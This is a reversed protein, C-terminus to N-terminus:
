KNDIDDAISITAYLDEIFYILDTKNYEKPFPKGNILIEPTFNIKNQICWHNQKKLVELYKQNPKFYKQNGMWEIPNEYVENMASIFFEQGRTNYIELLRSAIKLLQNDTETTDTNFRIIIKVNNKYKRIINEITKHVPICFGCFPSTIVVIELLSDKDGLIIESTNKIQTAIRTPKTLLSSFISYNRRFRLFEIRETKAEKLELLLPKISNWIVIISLFTFLIILFPKYYFNTDITELFFTTSIQLWLVGVISLCLLCWKKIVKLQYYISYITIPLTLLSLAYLINISSNQIIILFSSVGLCFFYILCLDSLKYNKFLKAGNSNLVADCDKKENISACFANGILSNLGLEQKVIAISVLVGILSTYFFFLTTLPTENVIFIVILIVFFIIYKLTSNITKPQSKKNEDEKEVAVIIGTFIQLFYTETTKNEKGSSDILIYDLDKRVVIVLDKDNGKYVQAIFCDPLQLLVELTVSVKTAINDINFHHLVDTISFLSPFSPHSQIQFSLEKKDFGIKNRKLLQEVLYIISNKM